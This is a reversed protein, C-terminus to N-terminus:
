GGLQSNAPPGKPPPPPPDPLAFPPPYLLPQPPPPEPLTPQPPDLHPLDPHHHPPPGPQAIQPTPPPTDGGGRSPFTEPSCGIRGIGRKRAGQGSPKCDAHWQNLAPTAPHVSIFHTHARGECGRAVANARTGQPEQFARRAMASPAADLAPSRGVEPCAPRM